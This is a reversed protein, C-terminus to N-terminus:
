STELRSLWNIIMMAQVLAIGEGYNSGDWSNAQLTLNYMGLSDMERLRAEKAMEVTYHWLANNGQSLIQGPPKLHGAAVPGLWLFPTNRASADALKLWEDMSATATPWFLSISLSLSHVVPVPKYSGPDKALLSNFSSHVEEPAPSGTIPLFILPTRDCYYPSSHGSGGDNRKVEESTTVAFKSCENKIFQNECRCAGRENESMKWQQLGGLAMNQRLLITFATYIHQLMTDGIFVIGDFRDLIMCIEATTYWRYHCGRPAFPSDFGQRGGGSMANLLTARNECYPPHQSKQEGYTTPPIYLDKSVIGCDQHGEFHDFYDEVHEKSFPVRDLQRTGKSSYSKIFLLLVVGAIIVYYFYSRTSRTVGGSM